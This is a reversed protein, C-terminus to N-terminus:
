PAPVTDSAPRPEQGAATLAVSRARGPGTRQRWAEPAKGLLLSVRAIPPFLFPRLHANEVWEFGAAAAAAALQSFSRLNCSEVGRTLLWRHWRNLSTSMSPSFEWLLALGGPKLVRLMEHLLRALGADDLHKVVYSCTVIDFSDDRFPMRLASAQALHLRGRLGPSDGARARMLMARSVDIGAPSTEFRVRSALVQLLSAPGCGVDLLRQSPQLQLMRDLRFVPTNVLMSGPVSALFGYGKGTISDGGLWRDYQRATGAESL